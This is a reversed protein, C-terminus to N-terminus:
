TATPAAVPTAKEWYNEDYWSAFTTHLRSSRIDFGTGQVPHGYVEAVDLIVADGANLLLDLLPITPATRVEFHGPVGATRFHAFKRAVHEDLGPLGSPLLLRVGLNGGSANAASSRAALLAVFADDDAGTVIHGDEFNHYGNVWRILGRDPADQVAALYARWISGNNDLVQMVLRTAIESQVSEVILRRQIALAAPMAGVLAIILQGDPSVGKIGVFASIGGFAISALALVGAFLEWLDLSGRRPRASRPSM